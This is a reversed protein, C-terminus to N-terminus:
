DVRDLQWHGDDDTSDPFRRRTQWYRELSPVFGVILPEVIPDVIYERIGAREAAEINVYLSELGQGFDPIIVPICQLRPALEMNSGNLSLLYDVGAADAALIEDKDFTDISVTFGRDKLARIVEGAASFRRDMSCGLDIVDAGSARYYDAISLIEALSLSPVHNIEAFIRVDYADDNPAGSEQGFFAPLDQLDDPGKRTPVGHRAEIVATDGECLGPIIIQDYDHGATLDLHTAIWPTTMLAAVTIKLTAIDYAFAPQMEGLVRGLAERALKGTVFLIRGM